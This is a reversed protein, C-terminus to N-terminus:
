NEAFPVGNCFATRAMASKTFTAVTELIGSGPRKVQHFDVVPHHHQEVHTALEVADVVDARM